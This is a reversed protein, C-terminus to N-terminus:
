RCPFVRNQVRKGSNGQSRSDVPTRLRRVLPNSGTAGRTANIIRVATVAHMPWLYGSYRSAPATPRAYRPSVRRRLPKASLLGAAQSSFVPCSRAMTGHHVKGQSIHSIRRVGTPQSLIAPPPRMLAAHLWEGPRVSASRVHRERNVAKAVHTTRAPGIHGPHIAAGAM